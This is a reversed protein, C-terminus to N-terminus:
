TKWEQCLLSMHLLVVAFFIVIDIAEEVQLALTCIEAAQSQVDEVVLFVLICVAIYAATL